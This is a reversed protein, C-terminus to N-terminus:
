EKDKLIGNEFILKVPPNVNYFFTTVKTEPEPASGNTPATQKNIFSPNGCASKIADRTDGLQVSSGCIQTSGVGIGNVSINIAKGKDDFTIQTKLTGQQPTLNSSSVTQPVFYSWEQPVNENEKKVEEQKDPKGCTSIVTDISDGFNIQSFNTPCFFAFSAAPALTLMAAILTRKAFHTM